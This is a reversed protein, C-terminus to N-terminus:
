SRGSIVGSRTWRDTRLTRAIGCRRVLSRARSRETNRSVDLELLGGVRREYVDDVVAGRTVLDLSKLGTLSIADVQEDRM